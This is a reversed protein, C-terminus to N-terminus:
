FIFKGLWLSSIETSWRQLMHAEGENAPLCVARVFVLEYM